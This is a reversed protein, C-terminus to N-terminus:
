YIYKASMPSEVALTLSDVDHLKIEKSVTVFALFQVLDMPSM